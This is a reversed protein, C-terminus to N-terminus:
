VGVDDTETPRPKEGQEQANQGSEVRRQLAQASIIRGGLGLIAVLMKLSASEHIIRSISLEKGSGTLGIVSPVFGQSRDKDVSPRLFIHGLIEAEGITRHPLQYKFKSLQAIIV